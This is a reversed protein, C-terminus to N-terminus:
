LVYWCALYLIGMWKWQQDTEMGFQELYSDGTRQLSGDDRSIPESYRDAGFENLALSRVAWSFSCAHISVSLDFASDATSRCLLIRVRPRPHEVSPSIYFLWILWNPIKDKTIM